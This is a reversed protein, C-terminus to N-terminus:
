VLISVDWSDMLDWEIGMTNGNVVNLLWLFSRNEGPGTRPDGVIHPGRNMALNTCIVAIESPNIPYNYGSPNIPYNYSYKSPTIFWYAYGPPGVNYVYKKGHNKEMVLFRASDKRKRVWRKRHSLHWRLGGEFDEFGRGHTPFFTM